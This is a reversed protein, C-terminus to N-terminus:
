NGTRCRGVGGITKQLLIMVDKVLPADTVMSRMTTNLTKSTLAFRRIILAKIRTPLRRTLQETIWRWVLLYVNPLNVPLPLDEPKRECLLPTQMLSEMAKSLSCVHLRLSTHHKSHKKREQIAHTQIHCSASSLCVCSVYGSAFSHVCPCVPIIKSKANCM